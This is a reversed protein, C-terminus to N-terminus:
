GVHPRVSSTRAALASPLDAPEDDATNCPRGGSQLSREIAEVARVVEYGVKPSSQTERGDLIAACFDEIELALPEMADIKPSVIDGTRYTLRFEGFNEPTPLEAGADFIRIPENSTDDYVVMKESGVISTRRLKVPSLWSLELHAITGTEFRLNVFAVDPTGPLVCSRTIASVETPMGGLWFSLISLDHPALDWIVSADPQHLGLNVRSLSIFYIDGLEGADLLEKVKIVPPSYLFTHGPLLVLSREAALDILEAAEASSLALPKEVLVHKGANLAALALEYHTSVPTVIAVADLDPDELLDDYSATTRAQPHRLSAAELLDASRDCLWALEAGPNAAVNRAVNPGWYGLGVVGVRVSRDGSM